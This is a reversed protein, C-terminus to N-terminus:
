HSDDDEEKPPDPLMKAGCYTCYNKACHVDVASNCLSCRVTERANNEYDIWVRSDTWFGTKRKPEVDAAPFDQIDDLVERQDILGFGPDFNSFHAVLDGRLIYDDNPM